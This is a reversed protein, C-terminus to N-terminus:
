SINLDVLSKNTTTAVNLVRGILISTDAAQPGASGAATVLVAANNGIILSGNTTVPCPGRTQVWGFESAPIAFQAVGVIGGTITTVPMQIVGKYQNAVLSVSNATTPIAVILEEFLPITFVGGSGVPAHARVTYVTGFAAGVPVSMYGDKYQDVTVATAGMTVALARDGVVGATSPTQLVHNTIPASSQIVDGSVLLVAANEVYRFQRGDAFIMAGGLTHGAQFTESNFQDGPSGAVIPLLPM